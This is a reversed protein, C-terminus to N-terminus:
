LGILVEFFGVFFCFSWFVRLSPFSNAFSDEISLSKITGTGSEPTGAAM